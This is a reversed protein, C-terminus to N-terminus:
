CTGEAMTIDFDEDNALRQAGLTGLVAALGNGVNCQTTADSDVVTIKETIGAPASLFAVVVLDAEGDHDPHVTIERSQGPAVPYGGSATMPRTDSPGGAIPATFLGTISTFTLENHLRLNSPPTSEGSDPCSAADTAWPVRPGLGKDGCDGQVYGEYQTGPPDLTDVFVAPSAPFTVPWTRLPGTSCLPRYTIRYGNSPAQACPTFRVRITNNAM